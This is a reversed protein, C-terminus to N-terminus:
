RRSVSRDTTGFQAAHAPCYTSYTCGCALSGPGRRVAEGAARVATPLDTQALTRLAVTHRKEAARLADQSATFERRARDQAAQRERATEADRLRKTAARREAAEQRWRERDKPCPESGLLAAYAPSDVPRLGGLARASGDAFCWRCSTRWVERDMAATEVAARGFLAVADPSLTRLAARGRPASSIHRAQDPNAIDERGDALVVRDLREDPWISNRVQRAFELADPQRRGAEMQRELLLRSVDDERVAAPEGARSADRLRGARIMKRVAPESLGLVRAAAAVPIQDM